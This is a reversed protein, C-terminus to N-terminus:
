LSVGMEGLAAIYDAETADDESPEQLENMAEYEERTIEHFRSADVGEGLFITTGYIEGNTLIHGDTATLTREM